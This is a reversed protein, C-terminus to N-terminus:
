DNHRFLATSLYREGTDCVFTLINRDAFREERALRLAAALNAGSSIGAMLGEREFLMLAHAIAEDDEIQEVSDIVDLDLTEPIFGAGIGQIGHPAPQFEEGALRHSIAPSAAPEVAVIQPNEWLTRRLFRGAGTITGGTGVGAVLAALQGQMQRFIEPGTTAEHIRPNAPNNFQGPCFYHGPREELLERTRDIAGRMGKEAPTLELQAGFASMLRRREISMSEPMLLMVDLKLAAGAMALAVGTNGSTPEIICMGPKLRGSGLADMLMARAIRDKISGGPNRSELKAYLNGPLDRDVQALRVIPTEGIAAFLSPHASSNM